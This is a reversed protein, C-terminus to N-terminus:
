KKAYKAELEKQEKIIRNIESFLLLCNMYKITEFNHIGGSASQFVPLWSGATAAKSDSKTNFLHKFDRPLSRRWSEYWYLVLLQHGRPMAKVTELRYNHSHHNFKERIDEHIEPNYLHKSKRYLHALFRFLYRSEQTKKYQLYNIDAFSFEWPVFVDASTPGYLDTFQVVPNNEPEYTQEFMFHGLKWNFVINRQSEVDLTRFLWAPIRTLNQVILLNWLVFKSEDKIALPSDALPKEFFNDLKSWVNEAWFSLQDLSMEEFSEPCSFRLRIPLWRLGFLYFRVKGKIM